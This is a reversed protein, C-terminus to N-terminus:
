RQVGAAAGERGGGAAQAGSELIEAGHRYKSATDADNLVVECFEAYDHHLSASGSFKSLLEEYCQVM